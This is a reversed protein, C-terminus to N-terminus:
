KISLTVTPGAGSGNTLPHPYTYPTYWGNTWTDNATCKDLVGQSGSGSTNWSGQDTSWYAVGTTCTTPRNARTGWGTGTTGNFPSTPNTQVGSAQDYYERDPQVFDTQQLDLNANDNSTVKFAITGTIGNRDATSDTIQPQIPSASTVARYTVAVVTNTAATSGTTGIIGVNYNGACPDCSTARSDPNTANINDDIPGNLAYYGLVIENTQALTGSSPGQYPSANDTAVSPNVDLPAATM